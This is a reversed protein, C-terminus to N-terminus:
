IEKCQMEYYKCGEKQHIEKHCRKCVTICMDIDASELPEWRIGEIHRCHLPGNSGCKTCQYDDRKLVMQRLEPQVERNLELWSKRGSRINDERMLIYPSKGYLPCASKCEDSCYFKHESNVHHSGNLFKVRNQVNSLTPIYWKRCWTCKVELVNYNNNNRRVSELWEIQTAYTDYCPLKNVWVGGKWSGNKNGRNKDGIKKRSKPNDMPNNLLIKNRQVERYKKSNYESDPDRWTDKVRKSM